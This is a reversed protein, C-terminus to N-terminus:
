MLREVPRETSLRTGWFDVLVRLTIWIFLRPVIQTDGSEERGVQDATDSPNSSDDQSLLFTSDSTIDDARM